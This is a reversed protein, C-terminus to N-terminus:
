PSRSLRLLPAQACLVISILGTLTSCSQNKARANYFLNRRCCHCRLAGAAACPEAADAAPTVAVHTRSKKAKVCAFAEMVSHTRNQGASSSESRLQHVGQEGSLIRLTAFFHRKEPKGRTAGLSEFAESCLHLASSQPASHAIQHQACAERFHQLAFATVVLRVHARPTAVAPRFWAGCGLSTTTVDDDRGDTAGM